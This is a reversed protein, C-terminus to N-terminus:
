RIEDHDNAPSNYEALCERDPPQAAGRLAVFVGGAGNTHM